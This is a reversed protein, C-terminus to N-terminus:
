DADRACRFGSNIGVDDPDLSDRDAARLDFGSVSVSGGRMVRRVYTKDAEDERENAETYPYDEHARSVWEWVNGSM